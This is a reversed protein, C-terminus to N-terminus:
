ILLKLIAYGKLSLNILYHIYQGEDLVKIDIDSLDRHLLVQELM